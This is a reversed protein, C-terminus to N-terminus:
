IKYLPLINCTSFCNVVGVSKYGYITLTKIIRFTVTEAM